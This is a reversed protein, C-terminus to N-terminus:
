CYGLISLIVRADALPFADTSICRECVAEVDTSYIPDILFQSRSELLRHVGEAAEAFSEPSRENRHEPWVEEVESVKTWALLRLFDRVYKPAVYRQSLDWTLRGARATLDRRSIMRLGSGLRSVRDMVSPHVRFVDMRVGTEPDVCQLLNRGAPDGPHVHRILFDRGISVPIGDFSSVIFDLDHLPRVVSEGGAQRIQMEVAFGGTLAWQSIDHTLLKGLSREARAQEEQTMVGDFIV